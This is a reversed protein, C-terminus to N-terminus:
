KLSEQASAEHRLFMEPTLKQISVLELDPNAAIAKLMRDPYETLFSGVLTGDRAQTRFFSAGGLGTPESHLASHEDFKALFEQPTKPAFGKIPRFTALYAGQVLEALWKRAEAPNKRAGDAGKHYAAWLRYKAWFDGAKAKRLEGALKTDASDSLSQQRAIEHMVFTGPTVKAVWLLRLDPNRKIDAVMKDPTKTLFSGILMADHVRTRFFSAGGVGNKGSKLSSYQHFKALFEAPARPQFGNTPAFTVLHLGRVMDELWRDAQRLDAQVGHTGDRYATFLEYKAVFNGQKARSLREALYTNQGESEQADRAGPQQSRQEAASRTAPADTKPPRAAFAAMPVAVFASLLVLRSTGLRTIPSPNGLM